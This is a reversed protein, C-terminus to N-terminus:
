KLEDLNLELGLKEFDPKLIKFHSKNPVMYEKYNGSGYEWIIIQKASRTAWGMGVTRYNDGGKLGLKFVLNKLINPHSNDIDEFQIYPDDSLYLQVFKLQKIHDDPLIVRPIEIDSM